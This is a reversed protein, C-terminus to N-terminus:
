TDYQVNYAKLEHTLVAIFARPGLIFGINGNCVFTWLPMIWLLVKDSRKM